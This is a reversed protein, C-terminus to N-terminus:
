VFPRVGLITTAHASAFPIAHRRTPEGWAACRREPFGPPDNDRDTEDSGDNKEPVVAAPLLPEDSAGHLRRNPSQCNRDPM